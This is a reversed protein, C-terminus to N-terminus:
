NTWKPQHYSVCGMYEMYLIKGYILFYKVVVPLMNTSGKWERWSLTELGLTFFVVRDKKKLCIKIWKWM